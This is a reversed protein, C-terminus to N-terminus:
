ANARSIRLAKSGYNDTKYHCPECLTRGNGLDLRLESYDRFSKIHDANLKGGRKECHQCTYNDRKFVSERWLKYEITNKLLERETTAKRDTKLFNHTGSEVRRKAIESMKMRTEASHNGWSGTKKDKNWAQGGNKRYEDLANNFKIHRGKNWPICGKKRGVKTKIESNM